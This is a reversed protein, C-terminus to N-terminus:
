WELNNCLFPFSEALKRHNLYQAIFAASGRRALSFLSRDTLTREREDWRGHWRDRVTAFPHSPDLRSFGISNFRSINVNRSVFPLYRASHEFCVSEHCIAKALINLRFRCLWVVFVFVDFCFFRFSLLTCHEIEKRLQKNQDAVLLDSTTHTCALFLNKLGKWLRICLFAKNYSFFVIM